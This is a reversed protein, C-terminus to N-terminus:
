RILKFSSNTQLQLSLTLYHECLIMRACNEKINCFDSEVNAFSSNSCDSMEVMLVM